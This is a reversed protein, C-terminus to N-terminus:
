VLPFCGHAGPQLSLWQQCRFHMYRAQTRGRDVSRMQKFPELLSHLSCAGQERSGGTKAFGCEEGIPQCSTSRRSGPEGEFWLVVFGNAKEGVQNSSDLAALAM